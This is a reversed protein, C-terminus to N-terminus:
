KIGHKIGMTTFTSSLFLTSYFSASLFESSFEPPWRYKYAISAHLAVIIPMVKFITCESGHSAQPVM